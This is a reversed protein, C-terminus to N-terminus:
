VPAGRARDVAERLRRTAGAMDEAMTVATIVAIGSAGARIVEAATELTIGGIGVVPVDCAAAIEAIRAPGVAAGADAKTATAYISGVGLYDAGAGAADRAEEGTAASVGLFPSTGLLARADAAPLDDQGVHVGDAGSALAVDVRDNVIFTVGADRCRSAIVRATDLMVRAPAEKMRLQIATAGGRIAADAIAIHSRGRAQEPGATIVYLRWDGRKRPVLSAPRKARRSTV